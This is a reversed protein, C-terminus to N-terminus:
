PRGEPKAGITGNPTSPRRASRFDAIRERLLLREAETLERSPLKPPAGTLLLAYNVLAATLVANEAAETPHTPALTSVLSSFLAVTQRPKLSVTISDRKGDISTHAGKRHHPSRHVRSDVTWASRTDDPFRHLRPRQGPGPSVMDAAQKAHRM